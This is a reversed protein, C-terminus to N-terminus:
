VWVCVIFCLFLQMFHSVGESKQVSAATVGVFSLSGEAVVADGGLGDADGGEGLVDEM